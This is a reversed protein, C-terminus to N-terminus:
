SYTHRKERQLAHGDAEETVPTITPRPHRDQKKKQSQLPPQGEGRNEEPADNENAADGTYLKKECSTKKEKVQEVTPRKTDGNDADLDNLIERQECHVACTSEM